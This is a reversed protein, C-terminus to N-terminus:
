INSLDLCGLGIYNAGRVYTLQMAAYICEVYPNCPEASESSLHVIPAISDGLQVIKKALERARGWTAAHDPQLLCHLIHHLCRPLQLAKFLRTAPIGNLVALLAWRSVMLVMSSASSSLLAVLTKLFTVELGFHDSGDSFHKSLVALIANKDMTGPRSIMDLMAIIVPETLLEDRMTPDTMCLSSCISAAKENGSQLLPLLVPILKLQRLANCVATNRRMAITSLLELCSAVMTPYQMSAVAIQAVLVLSDDRFEKKIIYQLVDLLARQVELSEDYQHFIVKLTPLLNVTTLNPKINHISDLILILTSQRVASALCDPDSLAKLLNCLIACFTENPVPCKLVYASAM